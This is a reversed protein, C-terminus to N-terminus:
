GGTFFTQTKVAGNSSPATKRRESLQKKISELTLNCSAMSYSSRCLSLLCFVTANFRLFDSLHLIDPNLDLLKKEEQSYLGIPYLFVM